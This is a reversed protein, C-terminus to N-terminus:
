GTDRANCYNDLARAMRCYTCDEDECYASEDGEWLTGCPGHAVVYDVTAEVLEELLTSKVTQPANAEM